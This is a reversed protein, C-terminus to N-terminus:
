SKVERLRQACNACRPLPPARKPRCTPRRRTFGRKINALDLRGSTVEFTTGGAACNTHLPFIKSDVGDFTAGPTVDCEAASEDRFRVRSLRAERARAFNDPDDSM